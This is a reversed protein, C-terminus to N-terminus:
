TPLQRIEERDIDDSSAVQVLSSGYTRLLRHLSHLLILSALEYALLLLWPFAPRYEHAFWHNILSVVLPSFVLVAGVGLYSWRSLRHKWTLLVVGGMAGSCALALVNAMPGVIREASFYYEPFDIMLCCYIGGYALPALVIM